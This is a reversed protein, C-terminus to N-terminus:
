QNSQEKGTKEAEREVKGEVEGDCCASICDSGHGPLGCGLRRVAGPSKSSPRAESQWQLGYVWMGGNGKTRGAVGTDAEDVALPEVDFAHTVQLMSLSQSILFPMFVLVFM